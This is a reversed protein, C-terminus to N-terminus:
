NGSIAFFVFLDGNTQAGITFIQLCHAGFHPLCTDLTWQEITGLIGFSQLHQEHSHPLLERPVLCGIMYRHQWGGRFLHYKYTCPIYIFLVHYFLFFSSPPSSLLTSRISTLLHQHHHHHIAFLVGCRSIICRRFLLPPLLMLM